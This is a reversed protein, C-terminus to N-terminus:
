GRVSLRLGGYHSCARTWSNRSRNQESLSVFVQGDDTGRSVRGIRQVFSAPGFGPEMFMLTSHFTVGLEVSSTCILVDYERPNTYRKGRPPEGPERRSDDLSNITFIKEERIGVGCIMKLIEPEEKKLRKLSDYIIIVTSGNIIAKRIGDINRAIATPLSCEQLSVEVDGHIPRHGPLHGTVIEESIMEIANSDIQFKNFIGTVDIPTASLLSVKGQRETMAILSFLCALGFSRDDITHFEDFIIHDFQRIFTFPTVTSAGTIRTGSVLGVVVEPVAFIIRGTSDIGDLLQRVRTITLSEHDDRQAQNGSWEIIQEEIWSSIHEEPWKHERLRERAQERADEILNQLLRKTPVIFLVRIDEDLVARIFAYSKGSGTPASVLRVFSESQLLRKQMPSLGCPLIPVSHANIIM